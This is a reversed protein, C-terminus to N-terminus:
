IRGATALERARKAASGADGVAGKAQGFAKRGQDYAEGPRGKAASGVAGMASKASDTGGHVAHSVDGAANRAAEAVDAAGTMVHKAAQFAAKVADGARSVVGEDDEADEEEGEDASGLGPVAEAAHEVGDTITDAIGRVPKTLTEAGSKVTDTVTEAGEGVTGALADLGLKRPVKVLGTILKGVLALDNAANAGLAVYLRDLHLELGLLGVDFPGLGIDLLAQGPVSERDEMLLGKAGALQDGAQETAQDAGERAQDATDEVTETADDALQEAQDTADDATETAQDAGERAQDATDEAQGNQAPGEREIAGLRYGLEELLEQDDYSEYDEVGLEEAAEVLDSRELGSTTFDPIPPAETAM